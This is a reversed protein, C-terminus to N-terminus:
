WDNLGRGKNKKNRHERRILERKWERYYYFYIPEFETSAPSPAPRVLLTGEPHVLFYGPYTEIQYNEEINSKGSYLFEWNYDNEKCFNQMNEYSDGCWVTVIELLDINKEDLAKLVRMDQECTYSEDNCFNLYVFKGAFDSMSKMEGKRNKLEFAPVPNGVILKEAQEVFNAYAKKVYPTQFQGKNKKLYIIIDNKAANVSYFEQYLNLLILYEALARHKIGFSQSLSDSLQKIGTGRSLAKLLVFNNKANLYDGFIEHMLRMYAPNNFEPAKAAYHKKFISDKNPNFALVRLNILEYKVFRYAFESAHLKFSDELALFKKEAQAPNLKKDSEAFLKPLLGSYIREYNNLSKNINKKEANLVNMYFRQPKFFPNLADEKRKETKIPLSVRYEEGPLAYLIGEFVDLNIRVQSIRDIEFRFEFAGTSDVASRALTKPKKTLFDDYGFISLTDGAYSKAKGFIVTSGTKQAALQVTFFFVLFALLYKKM